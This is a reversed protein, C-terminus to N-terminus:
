KSKSIQGGFRASNESFQIPFSAECLGGAWSPLFEPFCHWIIQQLFFCNHVFGLAATQAFHCCCVEWAFDLKVSIQDQQLLVGCSCFRLHKVFPLCINDGNWIYPSDSTCLSPHPSHTVKGPSLGHALPFPFLWWWAQRTDPYHHQWCAAISQM